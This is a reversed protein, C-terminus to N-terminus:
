SFSFSFPPFGIEGDEEGKAQIWFKYRKPVLIVWVYVLIGNKTLGNKQNKKQCVKTYIKAVIKSGSPSDWERRRGSLNCMYVSAFPLSLSMHPFGRLRM